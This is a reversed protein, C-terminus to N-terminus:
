IPHIDSRGLIEFVLRALPFHLGADLHAISLTYYGPPPLHMRDFSRPLLIDYERPIYYKERLSQFSTSLSCIIGTWPDKSMIKEYNKFTHEELSPDEPSNEDLDAIEISTEIRPVSPGIKALPQPSTASLRSSNSNYSSGLSSSSNVSM